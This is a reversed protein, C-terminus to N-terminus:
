GATSEKASLILIDYEGVLYRAEIKVTSRKQGYGSSVTVEKMQVGTSKGALTTTLRILLALIKAGISWWGQHVTIM